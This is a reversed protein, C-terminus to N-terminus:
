WFEHLIAAAAAAATPYIIYAGCGVGNFLAGNKGQLFISIYPSPTKLGYVQNIKKHFVSAITHYAFEKALPVARNTFRAVVDEFSSM